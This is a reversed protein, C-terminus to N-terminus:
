NLNVHQPVSSVPPAGNQGTSSAINTTTASPSSNQQTTSNQNIGSIIIKYSHQLLPIIQKANKKFQEFDDGLITAIEGQMFAWPMHSGALPCKEGSPCYVEFRLMERNKISERSCPFCFKHGSVSPCQVFHTDELREHCLTCKVVRDSNQSNSFNRRNSSNNNPHDPSHTSTPSASTTQADGRQVKGYVDPKIDDSSDHDRKRSAAVAAALTANPPLLSAVSNTVLNPFVSMPLGHQMLSNQLHIPRQLQQLAHLDEATFQGPQRGALSIFRQQQVLAETLQNLPLQPIQAQAAAAVAAAAVAQQQQQQQQQQHQQVVPTPPPVTAPNVGRNVAPSFRGAGAQMLCEKQSLNRSAITTSTEGVPFGHVRKLQRANEIVNEIRDAGEYNVCGRCVPEMYDNCMAWPWRPLDCLFCHQRGAIKTATIGTGIGTGSGNTTVTGNPGTGSGSHAVAAAAAAAAAAAGNMTALMGNPNM